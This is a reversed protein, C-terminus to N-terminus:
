FSQNEMGQGCENRTLVAALVSREVEVGVIESIPSGNQSEGKCRDKDNGSKAHTLGRRADTKLTGFHRRDADTFTLTRGQTEGCVM